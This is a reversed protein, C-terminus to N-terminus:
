LPEISELDRKLQAAVLSWAVDDEEEEDDAHLECCRNFVAAAERFATISKNVYWHRRDGPYRLYIEGGPIQYFEGVVNGETYHAVVDGDPQPLIVIQKPTTSTMWGHQRAYAEAASWLADWDAEVRENLKTLKTQSDDSDLGSAALARIDTALSSAGIAELAECYLALVEPPSGVVNVLWDGVHDRMIDAFAALVREALTMSHWEPSGPTFELQQIYKDFPTEEM